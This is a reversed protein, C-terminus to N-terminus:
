IVKPTGFPYFRPFNIDLVSVSRSPSMGMTELPVFQGGIEATIHLARIHPSPIRGPLDDDSFSISM